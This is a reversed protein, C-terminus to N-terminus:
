GNFHGKSDFVQGGSSAKAIGRPKSPEPDMGLRFPWLECRIINCNRVEALQGVSCDICKLRVIKILSAKTTM